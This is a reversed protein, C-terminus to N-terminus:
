AVGFETDTVSDDSRVTATVGPDLGVLVPSVTVALRVDIPPDAVCLRNSSPEFPSTVAASRVNEYMAVTGSPVAGPPLVNATAIASACAREPDVDIPSVTFVGVLGDPVPA